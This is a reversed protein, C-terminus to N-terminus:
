IRRRPYGDTSTALAAIFVVLAVGLTAGIAFAVAMM